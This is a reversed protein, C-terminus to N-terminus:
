APHKLQELGHSLTDEFATVAADLQCSTDGSKTTKQDVDKAEVRRVRRSIPIPVLVLLLVTLTLAILLM